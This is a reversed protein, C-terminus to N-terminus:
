AGLFFGTIERMRGEDDHAAASAGTTVVVGEPSVQNWQALSRGHHAAVSTIEFRHGPFASQFGAMYADLGEIGSTETQPDRYVVDVSVRAPLEAARDDSRASWCSAYHQWHEINM